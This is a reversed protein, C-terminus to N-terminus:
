RCLRTLGRWLCTEGKGVEGEADGSVVGCRAAVGLAPAGGHFALLRGAAGDRFVVVDVRRQRHVNGIRVVSAGDPQIVSRAIQDRRIPPLRPSHSIDRHPLERKCLYTQAPVLTKPLPPSRQVPYASQLSRISAM